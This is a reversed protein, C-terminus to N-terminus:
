TKPFGESSKVEEIQGCHREAHVGLMILWQYCSMNRFVFHLFLHEHLGERGLMAVSRQRLTRFEELADAATPFRGTVEFGPPATARHKRHPVTEILKHEKGRIRETEERTAPPEALVREITEQTRREMTVVHEAIEAISWAEVSPRYLWQAESLGTLLREVHQESDRLVRLALQREEQTLSM